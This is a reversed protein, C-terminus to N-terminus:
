AAKRLDTESGESGGPVVSLRRSTEAVASARKLAVYGYIAAGLTVIAASVVTLVTSTTGESGSAPWAFADFPLTTALAQSAAFALLALVTGGLALLTFGLPKLITM